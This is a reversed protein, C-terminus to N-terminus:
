ECTRLTSNSTSSGIPRETGDSLVLSLVEGIPVWAGLEAVAAASDPSPEGARNFWIARIGAARAGAIDSSWSDGVMVADGADCALQQLAIRFIGPDPKSIGAQESIVVASLYPEFGCHRIKELQEALLNNSVIGIPVKASLAALLEIAGPVTRWSKLYCSRYEAAAGRVVEAPADVGAALFLRKFREFRAEDLGLEGALVRAHLAELLEGHTREFAIPPMCSFCSHTIRLADLAERAAHRHDFLTDDLDFLVARTM